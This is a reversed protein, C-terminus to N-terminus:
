LLPFEPASLDVNGRKRFEIFRNAITWSRRRTEVIDPISQSDTGGHRSHRSLKTIFKVYDESLNLTRRFAEWRQKDKDKGSPFILQAFGEVANACKVESDLLNSLAGVLEHLHKLIAREAAALRIIEVHPVTCRKALEPEQLLLTKQIDGPFTCSDLILTLAAGHAFSMADLVGRVVLFSFIHIVSFPVSEVSPLDCDISVQSDIIEFSITAGAMVTDSFSPQRGSSRGVIGAPTVFGNFRITPM